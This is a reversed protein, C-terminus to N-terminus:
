DESYLDNIFETLEKETHKSYFTEYYSNEALWKDVFNLCNEYHWIFSSYKENAMSKAYKPIFQRYPTTEALHQALGVVKFLKGVTRSGISITFQTGFIKQTMYGDQSQKVRMSNIAVDLTKKNEEESISVKEALQKLQNNFTELQFTLNDMDMKYMEEKLMKYQIPNMNKLNVLSNEM